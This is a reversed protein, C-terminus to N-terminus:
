KIIYINIKTQQFLVQAALNSESQRIQEQLTHIQASAESIQERLKDVDPLPGSGLHQPIVVGPASLNSQVPYTQVDMLRPHQTRQPGSSWTADPQSWDGSQQQGGLHSYGMHQQQQQQQSKLRLIAQEANVKYTYYHYYEGGFLFSFKPNGKQKTKTM